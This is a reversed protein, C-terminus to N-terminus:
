QEFIVEIDEPIGYFEKFYGMREPGCTRGWWYENVDKKMVVTNSGSEIAEEIAEARDVTVSRIEAYIRGYFFMCCILAIAPVVAAWGRLSHALPPLAAITLTAIFLYPMFYLRPGLETTIVLPLLVAPASLLLFIKLGINERSMLVLIFMCVFLMVPVAWLLLGTKIGLYVCVNLAVTLASIFIGGTSAKRRLVGFILVVSAAAIIAPYAFFLDPLIVTFFREFAERIMNFLGSHIDIALVRIGGLASGSEILTNYISSTFMIVAGIASALTMCVHFASLRKTKIAAAITFIFFALFAYITLNEAFLGEVVALPLLLWFSARKEYVSRQMMIMLYLTLAAPIVYNAFASIWGYTQQWMLQPIILMLVNAALYKALSEQRDCLKSILLPILFLTLSLLINKIVVSRTMIIVFFNGAYRSNLTAHLFRDLGINLGWDWDDHCYPVCFAIYFYFLLLILMAGTKFRSESKSM